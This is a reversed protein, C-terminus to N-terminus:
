CCGQATSPAGRQSHCIDKTCRTRSVQGQSFIAPCALTFVPALLSGELGPTQLRRLAQSVAWEQKQLTGETDDNLAEGPPGPPSLDEPMSSCRAPRETESGQLPCQVTATFRPGLPCARWKLRQTAASGRAETVGDTSSPPLTKGSRAAGPALASAPRPSPGGATPQTSGCPEM